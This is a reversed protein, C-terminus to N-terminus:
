EKLLPLLDYVQLLGIIGCAIGTLVISTLCLMLGICHLRAYRWMLRFIFPKIERELKNNPIRKLLEGQDHSLGLRVALGALVTFVFIGIGSFIIIRPAIEFLTM